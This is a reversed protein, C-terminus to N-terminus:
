KDRDHITGARVGVWIAFGFIGAVTLATLLPNVWSV